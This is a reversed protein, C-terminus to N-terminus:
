SRVIPRAGFLFTKQQEVMWKWPAFIHTEPLSWQLSWINSFSGESTKRQACDMIIRTSFKYSRPQPEPPPQVIFWSHYFFRGSFHLTSSFPWPAPSTWLWSVGPKKRSNKVDPINLMRNITSAESIRRSFWRLIHHVKYIIPYVVWGWSTLLIEEMLLILWM